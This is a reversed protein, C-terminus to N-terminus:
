STEEEYPWRRVLALLLAVFARALYVTAALFSQSAQGTQRSRMAVPVQTVRLGLRRAIVLSEVTDGLYEAPYHTAFVAIARPGAARFGSTADSLPTGVILSLTRALLRMSWARPGRVRYDGVGAFRAGIVLDSSDLAAILPSLFTADHQGDGDVQVVVDYAGRRAYRYGTRMAGGVGLNYPLRAVSAGAQRAVAATLDTSGDDVVLIEAAPLAARVEAVVSAVSAAENYAPIVVLVRRTPAPDATPSSM